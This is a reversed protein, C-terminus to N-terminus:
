CEHKVAVLVLDSSTEEEYAGGTMDGYLATIEFGNAPLLTELEKRKWARLRVERSAQVEVPRDTGPRLALTTPYFWIHRQDDLDEHGGEDHFRLLRLFAIEGDAEPNDRFNLPLYRIRQSFIREYNLLQILLRGDPLLIRATQRLTEELEDDEFHPLVNGLCLALGFHESTLRGVETVDGELFTPGYPFENEFDRAKAIQEGSRDVGLTRVGQSALHRAHEGTGSGLDIVSREPSRSIERELFPWERKIREPWAILRRYNLRSYPSDARSPM